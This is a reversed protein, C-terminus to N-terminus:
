LRSNKIICIGIIERSQFSVGVFIELEIKPSSQHISIRMTYSGDDQCIIGSNLMWQMASFIYTAKTSHCTTQNTSKVCWLRHSRSLSSDNNIRTAKSRAFFPDSILYLRRKSVLRLFIETLLIDPVESDYFSFEKKIRSRGTKRLTKISEIM